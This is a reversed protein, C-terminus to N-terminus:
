LESATKLIFTIVFSNRRDKFTGPQKETHEGHSKDMEALQNFLCGTTVSLNPSILFFFCEPCFPEQLFTEM